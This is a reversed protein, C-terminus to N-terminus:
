VPDGLIDDGRCFDSVDFVAFCTIHTREHKLFVVSHGKAVVSHMHPAHVARCVGKGFSNLAVAAEYRQMTITPLMWYGHISQAM